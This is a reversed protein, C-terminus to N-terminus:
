SKPHLRLILARLTFILGELITHGLYAVFERLLTAAAHRFNSEFEPDQYFFIIIVILFIVLHTM